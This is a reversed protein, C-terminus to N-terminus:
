IVSKSQVQVILVPWSVWEKFQLITEQHNSTPYYIPDSSLDYFVWSLYKTM